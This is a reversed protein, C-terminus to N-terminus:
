EGLESVNVGSIERELQELHEYLRRQIAVAQELFETAEKKSCKRYISMIIANQNIIIYNQIKLYNFKKDTM